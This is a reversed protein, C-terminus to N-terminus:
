QINPVIGLVLLLLTPKGLTPTTPPVPSLNINAAPVFLGDPVQGYENPILM